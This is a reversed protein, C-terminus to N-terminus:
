CFNSTVHVRAHCIGGKGSERGKRTRAYKVLVIYLMHYERAVYASERFMLPWCDDPANTVERSGEQTLYGDKQAEHRKSM